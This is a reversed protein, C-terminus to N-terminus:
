NGQSANALAFAEQASTVTSPLGEAQISQHMVTVVLHAGSHSETDVSIPNKLLNSTPQGPPVIGNYYYFGDAGETWGDNCSVQSGDWSAVIKGTTDDVYYGVIAVRVYVNVQGKNIVTIESKATGEFKEDIETDYEAPIFVNEVPGTATVLYAVTGGVTGLLLVAVLALLLISKMKMTKM